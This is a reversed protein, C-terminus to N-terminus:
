ILLKYMGKDSDLTNSMGTASDGLMAAIQRSVSSVCSETSGGGTRYIERKEAALEIKSHRKMADYKDRLAKSERATGSTAAFLNAIQNWAREKDKWTVSDSKKNEIIGKFDQVLNVLIEEERPTFNKGRKKKILSEAM